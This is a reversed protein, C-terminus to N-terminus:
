FRVPCGIEGKYERPLISKLTSLYSLTFEFGGMNRSAKALKSINIDYSAGFSFDKMELKAVPIIADGWRYASGLVLSIDDPFDNYSIYSKLIHKYLIGALFQRNGGQVIYDGYILTHDLDGTRLNVGANAVFRKKLFLNDDDYFSAKSRLFHYCAVGTYFRHDDGLSGNFALGTSADAYTINTRDFVAQTPNSESFAGNQFQDDFKLRTPDFRSQILGGMFAITLYSTEDNFAKHFSIVPLLQIRGLKSDGAVDNTVQVGATLLDNSNFLPFTVEGSLSQTQYPVSVSSWQSRFASQFRVNGNFIGALAPNRLLPTEYFQSFTFDQAMLLSPFLLLFGIVFSKKM